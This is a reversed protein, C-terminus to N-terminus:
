RQVIINDAILAIRIESCNLNNNFELEKSVIYPHEFTIYHQVCNNDTFIVELNKGDEFMNINADSTYITAECFKRGPVFTAPDFSGMTFLPQTERRMEYAITNASIRLTKAEKLKIMNNIYSLLEM